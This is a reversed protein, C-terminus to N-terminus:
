CNSPRTASNWRRPCCPQMRDPQPPVVPLEGSLLVRPELPEFVPKRRTARAGKGRSPATAAEMLAQALPHKNFHKM